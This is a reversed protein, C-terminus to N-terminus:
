EQSALVKITVCRHLLIDVGRGLPWEPRGCNRSNKNNPLQAPSVLQSPPQLLLHEQM